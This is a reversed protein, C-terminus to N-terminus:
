KNIKGNILAVMVFSKSCIILHADMSHTLLMMQNAM